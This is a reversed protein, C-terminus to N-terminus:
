HLAIRIYMCIERGEETGGEREEHIKNVRIVIYRRFRERWGDMWGDMLGDEM